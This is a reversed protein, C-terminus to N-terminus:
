KQHGRIAAVQEKLGGIAFLPFGGNSGTHREVSRTEGSMKRHTPKLPDASRAPSLRPLSFPTHCSERLIKAPNEESPIWPVYRFKLEMEGPDVVNVGPADWFGSRREAKGMRKLSNSLISPIVRSFIPIEIVKESPFSPDIWHFTRPIRAPIKETRITGPFFGSIASRKLTPIRLITPSSAKRDVRAWSYAWAM